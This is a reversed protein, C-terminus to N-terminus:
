SVKKKAEDPVTVKTTGVDKVEVTTTRESEMDNGNFSITGKVKFEYKSLVGDKLWFKASGKAGSVEPGGGNPGRFSLLQKAGEETLDGAYVGEALKLEKVKGALDEAETAPVKYNQLTMALFRTPNFGGGGDDATAESLSKWGEETKLAGKGGKLVADTSGTRRTLTLFTFGDKETKGDTPGPRFRAGEPVAVTTHWSYNGKDALKKAAAKVEDAPSSDAASLSGALLVVLSAMIPLKM